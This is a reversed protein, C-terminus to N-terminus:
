KFYLGVVGGVALISTLQDRGVETAARDIKDNHRRV